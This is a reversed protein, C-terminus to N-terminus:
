EYVGFRGGPKLVRFIEAYVRALSPAYVTAEIAYIADFSNDPFPIHQVHATHNACIEFRVTVGGSPAVIRSRISGLKKPPSSFIPLSWSGTAM